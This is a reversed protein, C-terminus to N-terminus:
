CTQWGKQRFRQNRLQFRGGLVLNENDYKSLLNKSLERLFVVQQNTENPAYVNVLIINTNDTVIEALIYRGHDDSTM